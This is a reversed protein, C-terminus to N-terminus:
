HIVSLQKVSLREKGKWIECFYSGNPINAISVQLASTFNQQILVKGTIDVIHVEVPENQSVLITVEDQAPNPYILVEAQPIQPKIIRGGEDGQSIEEPFCIAVDDFNANTFYGMLHRAKFVATGGIMPCLGAIQSVIIQQAEDISVDVAISNFYIENIRKENREFENQPVIATNISKAETLKLASALEINRQYEGLRTMLQAKNTILERKEEQLVTNTPNNSLEEILELLRTDKQKMESNIEDITAKQVATPEYMNAIKDDIQNFKKLNSAQNNLYFTNLTTNNLLTPDASISRLVERSGFWTNYAGFSEPLYRQTVYALSGESTLVGENYPIGIDTGDLPSKYKQCTFTNQCDMPTLTPKTDFWGPSPFIFNPDPNWITGTPQAIEFASNSLLTPNNQNPNSAARKTSINYTGVWKNWHNIQKGIATGPSIVLAAGMLYHDGISNYKVKNNDSTAMYHFAARLQTTENCCYSNSLGNNNLFAISNMNQGFSTANGKVINAIIRNQSANELQVGRTLPTTTTASGSINVTVDNNQVFFRGDNKISIGQYDKELTFKNNDIVKAGRTSSVLSSVRVGYGTETQSSSKGLTTFKNQNYIKVQANHSNTLSLGVLKATVKNDTMNFSCTQRFDDAYIGVADSTIVNQGMYFFNMTQVDVGREVESIESALININGFRALIGIDNAYGYAPYPLTGARYNNNAMQEIKANTIFAESNISRIGGWIGTFINKDAVSHTGLTYSANRADVGFHTKTHPGNIHSWHDLLGGDCKFTNQYVDVWIPEIANDGGDYYIGFENKNFVTNEIKGRTQPRLTVGRYADEIITNDIYITKDDVVVIGEWMISCSHLYCNNFHTEKLVQIQAGPQMKFEVNNFTFEKEIILVGSVTVCIRDGDNNGLENPNVDDLTTNGLLIPNFIDADPTGVSHGLNECPCDAVPNCDFRAIRNGSADYDYCVPQALLSGWSCLYILFLIYKKM